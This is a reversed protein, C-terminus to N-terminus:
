CPFYSGLGGSCACRATPKRRALLKGGIPSSSYCHGRDRGERMRNMSAKIFRIDGTQRSARVKQQAARLMYGTAIPLITLHAANRLALAGPANAYTKRSYPPQAVPIPPTFPAARDENESALRLSSILVFDFAYRIPPPIPDSAAAANMIRSPLNGPPFMEINSFIGTMPPLRSPAPSASKPYERRPPRM